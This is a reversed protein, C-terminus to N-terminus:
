KEITAIRIQRGNEYMYGTTIKYGSKEAIEKFKCGGVLRGRDDVIGLETVIKKRENATLPIGVFKDLNYEVVKEKALKYLCVIDHRIRGRAQVQETIKRTNVICYQMKDDRINVGTEMARNIIVVNYDGPVIGTDIIENLVSLQEENMEIKQNNRSWLCIPKFTGLENVDDAIKNMSDITNTYILTKYGYEEMCPKIANMISKIDNTNEYKETNVQTYRKIKVDNRYDYVNMNEAIEPNEELKKEYIYPTATFYFTQVANEFFLKYELVALDGDNGMDQYSFLNHVEDCIIMDYDEKFGRLYRTEKAFTKYCMVNVNCLDEIDKTVSERLNSNDCLYLIKKSKDALLKKVIFYTKGSGTPAIILNRMGFTENKMLNYLFVSANKKM